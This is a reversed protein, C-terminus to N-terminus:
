CNVRCFGDLSSICRILRVWWPSIGVRQAEDNKKAWRGPTGAGSRCHQCMEQGLLSWMLMFAEAQTCAILFSCSVPSYNVCMLYTKNKYSYFANMNKLFSNKKTCRHAVSTAATGSGAQWQGTAAYWCTYETSIEAPSSSFFFFSLSFPLQWHAAGSTSTLSCQWTQCAIQRRLLVTFAAQGPWRKDGESADSTLLMMCRLRSLGVFVCLLDQFFQM